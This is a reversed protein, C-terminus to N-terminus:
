QREEDPLRFGDRLLSRMSNLRSAINALYYAQGEVLENVQEELKQQNRQATQMNSAVERLAHVLDAVEGVINEPRTEYRPILHLATTEELTSVLRTQVDSVKLFFYGFVVYCVIATITTSLATSMGHVVLGMSSESETGQLLNSAGLLAISLSVITGFVGTLILINNIYRPVSIRTSESAVVTAALASHNIPARQRNLLLLADYRQHILSERPVGDILQPSRSHVNAMFAGLAREEQGYQVLLNIMKLMGALFLVVITGNVVYGTATLQNRFYVGAILELNALVLAALAVAALVMRLLVRQSAKVDVNVVSQPQHAAVSTASM